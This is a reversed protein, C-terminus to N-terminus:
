GIRKERETEWSKFNQNIVSDEKLKKFYDMTQKIENKKPKIEESKFYGFYANCNKCVISNDPELYSDIFASFGAGCRYCRFYVTTVKRM